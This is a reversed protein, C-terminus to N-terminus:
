GPGGGSRSEGRQRPPLPDKSETRRLLHRRILSLLRVVVLLSLVPLWASYFWQPVGLAPSTVDFRYDDWAMRTGYWVLLAFMLTSAALSFLVFHDRIRAPLREAVFVIAIHKNRYFATSAGILTMVVLLSVSIEETFAFSVNTFYRVVVNGMTILCLLAMVLALLWREIAVSPPLAEREVEGDAVNNV